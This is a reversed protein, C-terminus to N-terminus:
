GATVSVHTTAAKVQPPYVKRLDQMVISENEFRTMSSVREREAKVDASEMDLAVASPGAMNASATTYAEPTTVGYPAANGYTDPVMEVHKSHPIATVDSTVVTDRPTM